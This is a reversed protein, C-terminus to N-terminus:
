IFLFLFKCLCTPSQGESNGIDQETFLSFLFPNPFFNFYWHVSCSGNCCNDTQLIYESYRCIKM